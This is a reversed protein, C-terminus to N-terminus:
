ERRLAEERAEHKRRIEAFQRRSMTARSDIETPQEVTEGRLVAAAKLTATHAQELWRAATLCDERRQRQWEGTVVDVTPDSVDGGSTHLGSGGLQSGQEEHARSYLRPLIDLIVVVRRTRADFERLSLPPSMPSQRRHKKTTTM